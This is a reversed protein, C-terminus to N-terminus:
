YKTPVDLLTTQLKLFPEISGIMILGHDLPRTIRFGGTLREDGSCLDSLSAALVRDSLFPLCAPNVQCVLM